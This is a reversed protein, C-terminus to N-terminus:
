ELQGIESIIFNPLPENKGRVNIELVLYAGMMKLSLYVLIKQRQNMKAGRQKAPCVVNPETLEISSMAM